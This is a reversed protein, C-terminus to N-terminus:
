FGFTSPQSTAVGPAAPATTKWGVYSGAANSVGSGAGQLGAQWAQGQALQGGAQSAGIQGLASGVMQGSQLGGAAQGAAAAQGLGAIGGAAAQGAGALGGLRGYQQEILQSLMAPRMQALAEQTNGGRLGGTASANQLLANEGQQMMSAFEPSAEVQAIAAQYAEPGDLGALARQMALADTGTQQYGQLGGVGGLGAQAYPQQDGRAQAGAERQAALGQQMMREQSKQAESSYHGAIMAGGVGAAVTALAGVGIATAVGSM